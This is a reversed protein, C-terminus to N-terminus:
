LPTLGLLFSRIENDDQAGDIAALETPDTVKEFYRVDGSRTLVMHIADPYSVSYLKSGKPSDPDMIFIAGDFTYPTESYSTYYCGTLGNYMDESTTGPPDTIVTTINYYMNFTSEGIIYYEEFAGSEDANDMDVDTTGTYIIRTYSSDVVAWKSLTESDSKSDVQDQFCGLTFFSLVLFSVAFYMRKKM